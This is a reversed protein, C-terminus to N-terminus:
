SPIAHATKPLRIVQAAYSLGAGFGILLALQGPKARGSNLLSTLAIPISAASTNGSESIDDAIVASRGKIFFQLRVNDLEFGSEVIGGNAIESLGNTNIIAIDKYIM